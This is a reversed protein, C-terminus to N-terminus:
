GNDAETCERKHLEIDCEECIFTDCVPCREEDSIHISYRETGCELCQEVSTCNPRCHPCDDAGCRGDHCRTLKPLQM